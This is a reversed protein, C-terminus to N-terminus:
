SLRRLRFDGTSRDGDPRQRSARDDILGSPGFGSFWLATVAFELSHYFRITFPQRGRTAQSLSSKIMVLSHVLRRTIAASVVAVSMAAPAFASNVASSSAFSACFGTPFRMLRGNWFLVLKFKPGSFPVCFIRLM